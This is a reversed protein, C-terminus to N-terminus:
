GSSMCDVHGEVAAQGHHHLVGDHLCLVSVPAQMPLSGEIEKYGLESMMESCQQWGGVQPPPREGAAHQAIAAYM